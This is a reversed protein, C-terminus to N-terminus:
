DGLDVPLKEELDIGTRAVKARYCLPEVGRAVADRFAEAYEPDIDDAPRFRQVDGRQAVFFVVARHGRRVIDILEVMHKRGRETVADPFYAIGDRALTVNKVEIYCPRLGNGELLIDIRSNLGYAIERKLTAYGSIEPIKAAAISEAVILNPRGTHVGVPTRGAYVIELQHKFRRSPNETTSLLVKSGPDSCTQMSGPNACHVTIEAGDALRVDALFRKYRRVLTGEILKQEFRM